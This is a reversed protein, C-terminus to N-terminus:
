VLVADNLDDNIDGSKSYEIQNVIDQYEGKCDTATVIDITIASDRTIYNTNDELSHVQLCPLIFVCVIWIFIIIILMVMVLASTIDTIPVSTISLGINSNINAYETLNVAHGINLIPVM